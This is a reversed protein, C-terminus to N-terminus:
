YCFNFYNNILYKITIIEPTIANFVGFMNIYYNYDYLCFGGGIVVRKYVEALIGGLGYGQLADPIQTHILHYVKGHPKYEVFATHGNVTIELQKNNGNNVLPNSSIEQRLVQASNRTLHRVFRTSSHM